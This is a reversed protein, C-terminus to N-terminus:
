ASISSQRRVAGMSPSVLRGTPTVFDLRTKKAGPRGAALAM